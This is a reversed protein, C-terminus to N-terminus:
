DEFWITWLVLAVFTAGTLFLCAVGLGNVTHTVYSLVWFVITLFGFTLLLRRLLIGVQM